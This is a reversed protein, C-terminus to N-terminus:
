CLPSQTEAATSKIEYRDTLAPMEQASLPQSCLPFRGCSSLPGNNSGPAGAAGLGCQAGRSRRLRPLSVSLSLPEEAPQQPESGSPDADGALCGGPGPSWWGPGLSCGGLCPPLAARLPRPAAGCGPEGAGGAGGARLPLSPFPACHCPQCQQGVLTRQLFPLAATHTWIQAIAAAPIKIGSTPYPISM